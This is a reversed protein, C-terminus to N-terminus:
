LDDSVPPRPPAPERDDAAELIADTWAELAQELRATGCLLVGPGGIMRLAEALSAQLTSARATVITPRTADPPGLRYLTCEWTADLANSARWVRWDQREAEALLTEITM